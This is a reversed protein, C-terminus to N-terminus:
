ELVSGIPIVPTPKECALRGEEWGDLVTDFLQFFSVATVVIACFM